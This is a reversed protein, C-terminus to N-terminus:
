FEGNKIEDLNNKLIEAAATYRATVDFVNKGPTGFERTYMKAGTSVLPYLADVAKMSDFNGRKYYKELNRFICLMQPYLLANNECYLALERSEVTENIIISKTHKM